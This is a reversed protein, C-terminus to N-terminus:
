EKRIPIAEVTMTGANLTLTSGVPRRPLKPNDDDTATIKGHHEDPQGKSRGSPGHVLRRPGRLDPSPGSAAPQPAAVKKFAPHEV